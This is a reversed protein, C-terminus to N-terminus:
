TYYCGCGGGEKLVVCFGSVVELIGNLLMDILVTTPTRWHKVPRMVSLESSSTLNLHKMLAVYSCDTTEGNCM